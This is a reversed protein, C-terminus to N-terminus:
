PARTGIACGRMRADQDGSNLIAWLPFGDGDAIHLVAVIAGAQLEVGEGSQGNLFFTLAASTTFVLGTLKALGSLSAIMNTGGGAVVLYDFPRAVEGPVEFVLPADDLPRGDAELTLTVTLLAM